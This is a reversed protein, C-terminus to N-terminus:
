ESRGPESVSQCRMPVLDYHAAVHPCAASVLSRTDDPVQSYTINRLAGWDMLHMNGFAWQELYNQRCWDSHDMAFRAIQQPGRPFQLSEAPLAFGNAQLTALVAAPDGILDEYTVVLDFLEKRERFLRDLIRLKDISKGYLDRYRKGSLSQYTDCPNRLFLIRRDPNFSRCQDEFSIECSITAKLFIPLDLTLPPALFQAFLDIIAVSDPIQALLCTFLSAGSSQMGYILTRV